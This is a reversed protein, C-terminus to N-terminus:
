FLSDPSFFVAGNVSYARVFGRCRLVIRPDPLM